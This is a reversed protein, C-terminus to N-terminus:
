RGACAVGADFYKSVARGRRSLPTAPLGASSPRTAVAPTVCPIPAAPRQPTSGTIVSTDLPIPPAPHPARPSLNTLNAWASKSPGLQASFTLIIDHGPSRIVLDCRSRPCFAGHLPLPMTQCQKVGMQHVLTWSIVSLPATPVAGMLSASSSSVQQTTQPTSESDAPASVTTPFSCGGTVGSV